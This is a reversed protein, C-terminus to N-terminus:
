VRKESTKEGSGGNTGQWVERGEGISGWAESGGAPFGELSVRWLM